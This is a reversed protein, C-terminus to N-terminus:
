RRGRGANLTALGYHFRFYHRIRFRPLVRSTHLRTSFSQVTNILSYTQVLPSVQPTWAVNEEVIFHQVKHIPTMHFILARNTM